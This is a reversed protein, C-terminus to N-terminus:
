WCGARNLGAQRHVELGVWHLGRCRAGKVSYALWTNSANHNLYRRGRQVSNDPSHSALSDPLLLLVFSVGPLGREPRALLKHVEEPVALRDRIQGM